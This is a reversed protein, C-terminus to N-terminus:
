DAPKPVTGFYMNDFFTAWGGADNRASYIRISQIQRKYEVGEPLKESATHFDLPEDVNTVTFDVTRADFDIVGKVHFWRRMSEIPEFIRTSTNPTKADGPYSEQDNEPIGDGGIHYHLRDAADVWFSLIRNPLNWPIPDEDTTSDILSVLGWRLSPTGPFWDFDFYVRDGAMPQNLTLLNTRAGTGNGYYRGIKNGEIGRLLDATNTGSNAMVVMQHMGAFTNNNPTGIKGTWHAMTIPFGFVDDSQTGMFSGTQTFPHKNLGSDPNGQTFRHSEFDEFIWKADAPMNWAPLVKVSSHSVVEREGIVATLKIQTEGVSVGTVKAFLSDSDEGYKIVTAVGPNASEWKVESIQSVMDTPRITAYIQAIPSPGLRVTINAVDPNFDETAVKINVSAEHGNETRVTIVTEGVKLPKIRKDWETQGDLIEVFGTPNSTWTLENGVNAYFPELLARLVFPDESLVLLLDKVNLSIGTVEVPIASVVVTCSAVKNGDVSTATITTEGPAEGRVRVTNGTGIVVAVDTDGSAWIVQQLIASTPTVVAMLVFEGGVLLGRKEQSLTVSRVLGPNVGGSDVQTETPCGGLAIAAVSALAM